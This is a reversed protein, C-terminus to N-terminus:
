GAMGHIKLKVAPTKTVSTKTDSVVKMIVTVVSSVTLERIVKLLIVIVHPLVM